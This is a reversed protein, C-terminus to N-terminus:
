QMNSQFLGGWLFRVIHQATEEVTPFIPQHNKDRYNGVQLLSIYSHAAFTPNVEPIEGHEMANKFAQEISQYMREEAEQIDEKQETSLTDETGQMFRDLDVQFTAKLHATTVKLLREQLPGQESLIAQIRDNILDMMQMLAETFLESKSSFYYYVTAKTVNCDTAIDDISVMPYGHNLFRQIATQIVLDRTSQTQENARPRGPPRRHKRHQANM